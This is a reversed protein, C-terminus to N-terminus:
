KLRDDIKKMLDNTEVLIKVIKEYHEIDENTLARGKRDKLWKQAPQYGGIYFNWAMAPVTGFYQADNIWVKEDDYRIIDIKDTGAEPYTTSLDNLLPSTMLHLDRLQKGFGALRHFEADDAPAPVRPFDSKLFEQYKQRYKPSYLVAYIYDLIDEPEYPKQLNTTFQILADPNFNPTRTGDDHYLYLPFSSGIESIRNSVLSSEVINEHVLAHFFGLTKQQRCVMLGVNDNQMFQTMVNERAREVVSPDYYIFRSDFPRYSIPQIYNADFEVKQLRANIKGGDGQSQANLINDKVEDRTGGILINDASTVIGV